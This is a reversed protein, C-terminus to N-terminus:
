KLTPWIEALDNEVENVLSALVENIKNFDGHLKDIPHGKSFSYNIGL